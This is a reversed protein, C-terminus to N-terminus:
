VQRLRLFSAFRPVGASTTGRYTFTVLSGEPPPAEREADTFGTGLLFEVGEQTRVRLAGMRGAHRGRGAVHGVVRAEADYLPKLKLLVASRGVAHVADARHLMLGEGGAHIVEDLRRQLEARGAVPSQPVAQLQTWGIRRALDELMAARAAFPGAAGPLDFVMYRIQRWEDGLPAQRRVAASLAEFRGRALWLEGDLPLAPLHRTFWPPAAVRGGGRLLLSQGDWYARVGDFKESVLYGAPDVGAPADQALLLPLAASRAPRALAGAPLMALWALLTRRNPNPM